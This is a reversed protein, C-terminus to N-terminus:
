GHKFTALHNQLMQPDTFTAQRGEELCKSCTISQEVGDTEAALSGPEISASALRNPRFSVSETENPRTQYESLMNGVGIPELDSLPNNYVPEKDPKFKVSKLRGEYRDYWAQFLPGSYNYDDLYDPQLPDTEPNAELKTFRYPRTGENKDVLGINNLEDLINRAWDQSKGFERAVNLASYSEVIGMWNYVQMLRQDTRASVGGPGLLDRAYLFDVPHAVVYETIGFEVHVRQQYHILASVKILYELQKYRRFILTKTSPLKEAIPDLFPVLVERSIMGDVFQKLIPDQQPDEFHPKSAQDALWKLAGKIQDVGQDVSDFIIRNATGVAWKLQNSTSLFVPKGKHPTIESRYKNTKPDKITTLRALVGESLLSRLALGADKIGVAEGVYLIKNGIEEEPLYDLAKATASTIELKNDFNALVVKCITSKGAGPDGILILALAYPGKSSVVVVFAILRSREHGYIQLGLRANINRLLGPDKPDLSREDTM